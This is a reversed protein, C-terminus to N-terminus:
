SRLIVFVMVHTNCVSWRRRGAEVGWDARKSKWGNIEMLFGVEDCEDNPDRIRSTSAGRV